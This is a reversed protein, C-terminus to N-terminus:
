EGLTVGQEASCSFSPSTVPQFPTASPSNNSPSIGYKDVEATSEKHPGAFGHPPRERKMGRGTHKASGWHSLQLFSRVTQQSPPADLSGPLCGIDGPVSTGERIGVSSELLAWREGLKQFLWPLGEHCAAWPLFWDSGAEGQHFGDLFLHVPSKTFTKIVHFAKSKHHYIINEATHM